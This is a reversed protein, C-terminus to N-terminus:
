EKVFKKVTSLNDGTLRVVYTGAPLGALSVANSTGSVSKVQRGCVDYICVNDVGTGNFYLTNGAPNPYVSVENGALVNPTATPTAGDTVMFPSLSTIGARTMTYMSGSTGASSPTAMDWAGSTHHSLYAGSRNFSNLEMTADWMAVLTYDIGSTATSSVHWTTNVVSATTSILTGTTGGSLVGTSAGVSVDAAAAGTGGIVVMPAYNTLTGVEFTDTAGPTLHMVLEGTGDTIIYSGSTGGMITGGSAISLDSAGLRLRGSTLGLTNTVSLHSGLAVTSGSGGMSLTLTHLTGGGGAFRLPGIPSGSTSIILGSSASGTLTGTGSASIDAGAGLTLTHGSLSLTGSTLTLMGYLTLGSGLMVSSGGLSITLDDLSAGGSAFRLAGTVSGGTSIILGSSSSGTLTGTGAASIDAGMGLTLTHGNLALTGSNLTLMGSLTLDSGLTAASGSGGLSISLDHLTSGGAAFRLMGSLGGGTSIVLDSSSSGTITGTGSASVDAGAGLTLTYGSLSLTGSSLTLTGWVTVPTSLTVTSGGDVTLAGLGSGTLEVGSTGSATFVVSYSSGLSLMGSGGVSLSGGSRTILSGSGLTLSGATLSLSGSALTLHSSVIVDAATSLSAGLSTFADASIDGTFSMGSTLGMAMCDVTITGAGTLSGGTLILASGAASTLAGNVTLTSSGSFTQDATLTVTIGPPIIVVDATLLSGPLIGGWTASSNFNGSIVATFVTANATIGCAVFLIASLVIRRLTTLVKM